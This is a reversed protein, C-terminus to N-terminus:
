FQYSVGLMGQAGQVPYNAWRHYNDNFLNNGRLFFGLQDTLQFNIRMNADVYSDLDVIVPPTIGSFTRDKREGVFFLDASASWKKTIQYAANVAAKFNPLNWAEPQTETAYNYYTANVGINFDKNVGYTLAGHILFTKVNDYEVKFANNHEYSSSTIVPGMLSYLTYLAKNEQNQYGAHLDYHLDETFKGKAGFYVHYKTNTPVIALDPAVYPNNQAFNYYTNQQLGGDIGAYLTFYDGAVRLSGKVEPYVYVDNKSIETNSSYVVEAGVNLTWQNREFNLSPHIGLNLWGYQGNIAIPDFKGNLYDATIDAQITEKGVAFQFRPKVVVHNESGNFDDGFHRYTASIKDLVSHNFELSSNLAITTYNHKPNIAALQTATLGNPVGYWNYLQHQFGLNITWYLSESQSDYGFNFRTDYFKDDLQAEKIGGQSSHHNLGIHLGQKDAVKINSYFEALINTYNGIGLAAYNNYLDSHPQLTLGVANGKEPVFTSAVPISIIPYNVRKKKLLSTDIKKDPNQKLKVADSVTPSYTKVIILKETEIQSNDTTDQQQAYIAGSCLVSFLLVINKVATPIAIPSTKM